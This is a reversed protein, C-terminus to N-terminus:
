ARDRGKITTTRKAPRYFRSFDEVPPIDSYDIDSDSMAGLADLEAQLEATLPPMNDLDLEFSTINKENKM